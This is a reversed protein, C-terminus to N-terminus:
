KHQKKRRKRPKMEEAVAAQNKKLYLNVAM